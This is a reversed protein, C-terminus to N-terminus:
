VKYTIAGILYGSQGTALTGAGFAPSGGNDTRHGLLYFKTTGAYTEAYVGYTSAQNYVGNKESVVGAEYQGQSAFPLGGILVTGAGVNTLASWRLDFNTIVVNGIKTYKGVQFSYTLTPNTTSCELTPTWTGEEYDDLINPNTNAMQNANFRISVVGDALISMHETMTTSMTQLSMYGFVSTTENSNGAVIQAMANHSSDVSRTRCFQLSTSAIGVGAGYSYPNNIVLGTQTGSGNTSWIAAREGNYFGTAGTGIGVKGGVPNMVINYTALTPNFYSAQMWVTSVPSSYQGIYLGDGGSGCIQVASTNAATLDTSSSNINYYGVSLGLRALSTSRFTGTVDLKHSPNTLGIGTNGNTAVTLGYSSSTDGYLTISNSGAIWGDANQLRINGGNVTFKYGALPTTCAVGVSGNAVVYMATGISMTNTSVTVNAPTIAGTGDILAATLSKSIPM